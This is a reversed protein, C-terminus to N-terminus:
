DKGGEREIEKELTRRFQKCGELSGEYAESCLEFEEHQCLLGSKM